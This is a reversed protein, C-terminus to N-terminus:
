APSTCAPALALCRDLMQLQQGHQQAERFPMVWDPCALCLNMFARNAAARCTAMLEAQLDDLREREQGRLRELGEPLADLETRARAHRSRADALEGAREVLKLEEGAARAQDRERELCVIAVRREVPQSELRVGCHQGLRNVM